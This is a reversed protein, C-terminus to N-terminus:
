PSIFQNKWLDSESIRFSSKLHESLPRNGTNLLEKQLEGSWERRRIDGALLLRRTQTWKDEAVVRLLLQNVNTTDQIAFAVAQAMNRYLEEPDHDNGTVMLDLSLVGNEWGVSGITLTLPLTGIADVLNTDDLVMDSDESFTEVAGRDQRLSSELDALRPLLIASGATLLLLAGIWWTKNM